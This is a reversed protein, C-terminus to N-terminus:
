SDSRETAKKVTEAVADSIAKDVTERSLTASDEVEPPRFYFDGDLSGYRSPGQQGRTLRKVEQQVKRLMQEIEMQPQSELVALLASTYPSNKGDGDAATNGHKTSFSILTGSAESPAALERASGRSFSRAFPNDRCPDFFILKIKASAMDDIVDDLRVLEHKLDRENQPAADIPILFNVGNVQVGHGAYFVLAM